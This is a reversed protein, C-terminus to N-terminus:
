VVSEWRWFRASSRPASVSRISHHSFVFMIRSPNRTPSPLPPSPLAARVGIPPLEQERVDGGRERGDNYCENQVVPQALAGVDSERESDLLEPHAAGSGHRSPPWAGGEEKDADSGELRKITCAGGDQLISGCARSGSDQNQLADMIRQNSYAAGEWRDCAAHWCEYGIGTDGTAPVQGVHARGLAGSGSSFGGSGAASEGLIEEFTSTDDTCSQGRASERISCTSGEGDNSRCLYPHVDCTLTM